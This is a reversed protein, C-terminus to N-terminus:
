DKLLNITKDIDSEWDTLKDITIKRVGISHGDGGTYFVYGISNKVVMRPWGVWRNDFQRTSNGLGPLAPNRSYYEWKILDKSRAIGVTDFWGHYNPKTTPKWNNCGEYWLFWMDGLRNLSRPRIHVADWNDLTEPHFVPNREDAKWDILDNSYILYGRDGSPGSPPNPNFGAYFM